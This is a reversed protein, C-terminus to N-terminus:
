CLFDDLRQRDGIHCVRGDISLVSLEDAQDGAVRAEPEFVAEDEDHGVLHHQSAKWTGTMGASLPLHASPGAACQPWTGSHEAHRM